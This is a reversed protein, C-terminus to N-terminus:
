LTQQFGIGGFSVANSLRSFGTGSLPLGDAGVSFGTRSLPVAEATCYFGVAFRFVVRGFAPTFAFGSRGSIATATAQEEAKATAREGVWGFGTL